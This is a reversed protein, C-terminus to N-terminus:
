HYQSCEAKRQFPRINTPFTTVVTFNDSASPGTDGYRIRACAAGQPHTRTFRQLEDRKQITWNVHNDSVQSITLGALNHPSSVVYELQSPDWTINRAGLFIQRHEESDIGSACFEHGPLKNYYFIFSMCMEQRTSFGGVVSGNAWTNDYDCELALHDGPLVKVEETLARMPQYNFAYNDDKSIWQLEVGNRFHHLRIRKGSNHSHLFVSVMNIGDHPLMRKTCESPCMGYINHSITSPPLLLAPSRGPISHAVTLMGGVNPRLQSTYFFDISVDVVSERRTPNDYHVQFLYYEDPSSGVPIGMQPPLFFTRAGVGWV